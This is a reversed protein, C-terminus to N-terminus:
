YGSVKIYNFLWKKGKQKVEPYMWHAADYAVEVTKESKLENLMATISSAPCVNDNYGYAYFGPTKLKRAFNVVDYYRTVEVKQPTFDFDKEYIRPWGGARGNKFGELDSLAPYFAAIADVRDDLAATVITLAGGQSGGTVALNEGDFKDVTHIFDIARVCATYVRKYYYADRDDMRNWYYKYLAGQKLNEYIASDYLNVPIGHIGIQLSIVDDSKDTGYYPRVGAGPVHLVAPFTGEKKPVMLIGYIFAKKGHNFRIHYALNKDTDQEPLRTMQPNLDIKRADRIAKNWFSDFDEPMKTFTQIQDVDIGATATNSFTKGNDEFDVTLRVFGPENLAIGEIIGYGSILGETKSIEPEMQEQAITYKIKANKVLKGYKFISVEFDAREGVQYQYSESVPAVLIRILEDRQSQSVASVSCIFILFFLYSKM